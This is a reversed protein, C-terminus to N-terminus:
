YEKLFSLCLIWRVSQVFISRELIPLEFYAEGFAPFRFHGEVNNYVRPYRERGIRVRTGESIARLVQEEVVNKPIYRFRYETLGPPFYQTYFPNNAISIRNPPPQESVHSDTCTMAPKCPTTPTRPNISQNISVYCTQYEMVLEPTLAKIWRNQVFLM